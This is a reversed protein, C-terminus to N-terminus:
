LGGHAHHEPTSSHVFSTVTTTLTTSPTSFDDVYQVVRTQQIEFCTSLADRDDVSNGTRVISRDTSGYRRFKPGWTTGLDPAM